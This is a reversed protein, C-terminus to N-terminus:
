NTKLESNQTQQEFCEIICPLLEEFHKSLDLTEDIRSPLCADTTGSECQKDPNQNEAEVITLTWYGADLM